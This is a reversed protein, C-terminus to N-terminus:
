RWPRDSFHVAYVGADRFVWDDSRRAEGIVELLRPRVAVLALRAEGAAERAAETIAPDAFLGVAALQAQPNATSEFLNRGVMDLNYVARV